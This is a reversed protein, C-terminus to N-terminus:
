DTADYVEVWSTFKKQAYQVLFPVYTKLNVAWAQSSKKGCDLGFSTIGVQIMKTGSKRYVPGGSDGPCVSNIGYKPYYPATVCIMRKPSWYKYFRSPWNKRCTYYNQYRLTAERLITSSPGKNSTRGFGAAFVKAKLPLNYGSGPLRVAAYPNKFYGYIWVLAVDNQLLNYNFYKFVDVYKAFYLKGKRAFKGARVTVRAVDFKYKPGGFCHAAALVLYRNLITGTCTYYTTSSKFYISLFVVHKAMAFSAQYGGAIEPTGYNSSYSAQSVKPSLGTLNLKDIQRKLPMQLTEHIGDLLFHDADDVVFGHCYSFYILICAFFILKSSAM